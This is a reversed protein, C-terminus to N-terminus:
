IKRRKAPLLKDPIGHPFDATYPHLREGQWGARPKPKARKPSKRAKRRKPKTAPKPRPPPALIAPRKIGVMFCLPRLARWIPGPAAALIPAMEADAFLDLLAGYCHGSDTGPMLRLMWGSKAFLPDAPKPPARRPPQEAPQDTSKAPSPPKRLYIKGARIREVIRYFDQRADVIRHFILALLTTPLWQNQMKIRRREIAILLWDFPATLFQREPTLPATQM